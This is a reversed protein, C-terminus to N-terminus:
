CGRLVGVTTSGALIKILIANERPACGCGGRCQTDWLKGIRICQHFDQRYQHCTASPVSSFQWHFIAKGYACILRRQFCQPQWGQPQWGHMTVINYHDIGAQQTSGVPPEDCGSCKAISWVTQRDFGTRCPGSPAVCM